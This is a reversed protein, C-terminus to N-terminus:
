MNEWVLLFQQRWKFTIASSFLPFNISNTLIDISLDPFLRMVNCLRIFGVSNSINKEDERVIYM